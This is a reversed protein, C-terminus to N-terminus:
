IPFSQVHYLLSKRNSCLIDTFQSHHLNQSGEIDNDTKFFTKSRIWLRYCDNALPEIMCIVQPGGVTATIGGLEEDSL